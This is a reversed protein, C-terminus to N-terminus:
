HSSVNPANHDSPSLGDSVASTNRDSSSSVNSSLSVNSHTSGVESVSCSVAGLPVLSVSESFDNTVSSNSPGPLESSRLM